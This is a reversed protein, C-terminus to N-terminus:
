KSKLLALQEIQDNMEATADQHRKRLNVITAENQILCEELDKRMKILESERKKNLEIQSATAGGAELLREGLEEMERSLEGKQREAKARAQREAELEEELEEVRAQYEKIQKQIKSVAGQETELKRMVDGQQAEKRAISNELEKQGRQLEELAHQSIKLESELKRRQKDVDLRQRKETEYASEIEDVTQM